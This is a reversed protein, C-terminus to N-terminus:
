LGAMGASFSTAPADMRPEAGAHTIWLEAARVAARIDLLARKALAADDPRSAAASARDVAASLAGHVKQASSNKSSQNWQHADSLRQQIVTIEPRFRNQIWANGEKDLSKRAKPFRFVYENSLEALRNDVDRFQRAFHLTDATLPTIITSGRTWHRVISYSTWVSMLCALTGLLGFRATRLIRQRLKTSGSM